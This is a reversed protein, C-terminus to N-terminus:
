DPNAVVVGLVTGKPRKNSPGFTDRLLYQKTRAAFALVVINASELDIVIHKTLSV